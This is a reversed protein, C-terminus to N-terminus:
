CGVPNKVASASVQGPLFLSNVRTSESPALIVLKTQLISLFIFCRSLVALSAKISHYCWLIKDVSGFTLLVAYSENM